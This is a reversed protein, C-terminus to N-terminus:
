GNNDGRMLSQLLWNLLTKRELVINATLTMGPRLPTMQSDTPITQQKLEVAVPYLPIGDASQPSPLTVPEQAVSKVRGEFVGYTQFPFADYKVQVEQGPRLTGTINADAWLKASVGAAKTSPAEVQGSLATIRPLEVRTALGLGVATFGLLTMMSVWFRIPTTLIVHSLFSRQTAHEIAEQRFLPLPSQTDM